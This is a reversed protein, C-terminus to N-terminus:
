ADMAARQDKIEEALNAVLAALRESQWPQDSALLERKIRRLALLAYYRSGEECGERMEFVAVLRGTRQGTFWALGMPDGAPDHGSWHDEIYGARRFADVTATMADETTPTGVGDGNFLTIVPREFVTAKSM